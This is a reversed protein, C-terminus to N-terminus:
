QEGSEQDRRLAFPEDQNFPRYAWGREHLVNLLDWRRDEDREASFEAKLADTEATNATM